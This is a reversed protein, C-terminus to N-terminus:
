EMRCITFCITSPISKVYSHVSKTIELLESKTLMHNVDAGAKVEGQPHPYLQTIWKFESICDYIIIELNNRIWVHTGITEKTDLTYEIILESFKYNMSVKVDIINYPIIINRIPHKAEGAGLFISKHKTLLILITRLNDNHRRSANVDQFIIKSYTKYEDTHPYTEFELEGQTICYGVQFKAICSETM